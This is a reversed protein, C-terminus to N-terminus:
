TDASRVGVGTPKAYQWCHPSWMCASWGVSGPAFARGRAGDDGGAIIPDGPAGPAEGTAEGPRCAADDGAILGLWGISGCPAVSAASPIRRPSSRAAPSGASRRERGPRRPARRDEDIAVAGVALAEREGALVADDPARAGVDREVVIAEERALVRPELARGVAADLDM